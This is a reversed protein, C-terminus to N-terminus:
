LFLAISVGSRSSRGCRAPLVLSSGGSARTPRGSVSRMQSSPPNRTETPVRVMSSPAHRSLFAAARTFNSARAGPCWRWRSRAM